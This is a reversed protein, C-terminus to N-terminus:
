EGDRSTGDSALLQEVRQWDIVSRTVPWGLAGRRFLGIDRVVATAFVVGVFAAAIPGALLYLLAGAIFTTALLIAYRRRNAAFQGWVTLPQDRFRLFFRLQARAAPSLQEVLGGGDRRGFTKSL